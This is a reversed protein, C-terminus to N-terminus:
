FSSQGSVNPSADVFLDCDGDDDFFVFESFQEYLSNIHHVKIAKGHESKKIHVVGDKTYCSHILGSRKLKRGCFALSENTKMLSENVFIQNNRSFNYTTM